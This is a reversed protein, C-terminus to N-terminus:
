LGQFYLVYSLWYGCSGSHNECYKQRECHQPINRQKLISQQRGNHNLRFNDLTAYANLVDLLLNRWYEYLEERKPIISKEKLRSVENWISTYCNSYRLQTLSQIRFARSSENGPTSKEEGGCGPGRSDAVLTHPLPAGEGITSCFSCSSIQQGGDRDSTLFAHLILEM